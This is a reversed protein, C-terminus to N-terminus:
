QTPPTPPAPPAPPREWRPEFRQGPGRFGFGREGPGRFGRHRFRQGRMGFGGRGWGRGMMGRHMRQRALTRLKTRQEPTLTGAFALRTDVRSRLMAAQLDSMERVKKEVATRDPTDAELLENLEMQKVRLAARNQISKKMTDRGIGRLKELQEKTLGLQEQLQPDDFMPGMDEGDAAEMWFPPEPPAPPAPPAEQSLVAVATGLALVAALGGLIWIRWSKM